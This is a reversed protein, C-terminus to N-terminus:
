VLPPLADSSEIIGAWTPADHDLRVTATLKGADLRVRKRLLRVLQAEPGTSRGQSIWAALGSVTSRAPTWPWGGSSSAM